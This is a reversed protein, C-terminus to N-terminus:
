DKGRYGTDRRITAIVAFLDFNLQKLWLYPFPALCHGVRAEGACEFGKKAAEIGGLQEVLKKAGILSELTLGTAKRGRKGKKGGSERHLVNSVLQPTVKHAKLAEIIEAPRANPHKATFDRILQSKNPKKRPM